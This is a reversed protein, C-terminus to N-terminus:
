DKEQSIIYYYLKGLTYSNQYRVIALILLLITGTAYCFVISSAAVPGLLVAVVMTVCTSLMVYTASYVTALGCVVPIDEEEEAKKTNANKKAFMWRMQNFLQPVINDRAYVSFSEAQRQVHFASMPKIILVIITTAMVGFILQALADARAQQKSGPLGWSLIWHAGTIVATVIPGYRWLLTDPASLNGCNMLWSRTQMVLLALAFLSMCVAPSTNQTTEALKNFYCEGQEERCNLYFRSFTMLAGLLFFLPMVKRPLNASYCAALLLSIFLFYSVSAEEVVYSNSFLGCASLALTARASYDMCSRKKSTDYWHQAIMDWNQIVLMALMFVSVMGTSFLITLELNEVHFFMHGVISVLVALAMVGYSCWLFSSQFIEPLREPPIGDVIMYCFFITLFILLLGRSMSFSDFQIWVEQCM